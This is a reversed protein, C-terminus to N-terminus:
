NFLVFTFLYFLVNGSMRFSHLYMFITFVTTFCCHVQLASTNVSRATTLEEITQQYKRVQEQLGREAQVLEGELQSKELKLAEILTDNELVTRGLTDQVERVQRALEEIRGQAQEAETKLRQKEMKMEYDESMVKEQSSRMEALERRLEELEERSGGSERGREGAECLEARAASLKEEKEQVIGQLMQTEKGMATARVLKERLEKVTAELQQKGMHLNNLTYASQSLKM